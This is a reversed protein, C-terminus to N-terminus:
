GIANKRRIRPDLVAYCVDVIGNVVVYAIAIFLICGQVIMFDRGFIAGVM